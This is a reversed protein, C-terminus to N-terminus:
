YKEGGSRIEDGRPRSAVPVGLDNDGPQLRFLRTRDDEVPHSRDVRRVLHDLGEHLAGVPYWEEGFFERARDALPDCVRQSRFDRYRQVVRQHGTKVSEARGLGGGLDSGHDSAFEREIEEPLQGTLLGVVQGGSELPEYTSIEDPRVPANGGRILEFVGKDLLGGIVRHQTPAARTEV